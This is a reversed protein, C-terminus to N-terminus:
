APIPTGQHFRIQWRGERRIWISSRRVAATRYTVLVVDDALDTADFSEISVPDLRPGELLARITERTWARGSRGIEHFDDAVLTMLGGPVERPDRAALAEEFRLLLDRVASDPM